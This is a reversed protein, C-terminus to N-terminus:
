QTEIEMKKQGGRLELEYKKMEFKLRAEVELIKAKYELRRGSSRSSPNPSPGKVFSELNIELHKSPFGNKQTLIVSWNTINLNEDVCIKPKEPEM